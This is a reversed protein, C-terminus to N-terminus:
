NQHQRCNAPDDFSARFPSLDDKWGPRRAAFVGFEILEANLARSSAEAIVVLTIPQLERSGKLIRSFEVATMGPLESDIVCCLSKAARM